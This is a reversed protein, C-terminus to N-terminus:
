REACVVNNAPGALRDMTCLILAGFKDVLFLLSVAIELYLSDACVLVGRIGHQDHRQHRDGLALGSLLLAISERREVRNSVLLQNCQTHGANVWM